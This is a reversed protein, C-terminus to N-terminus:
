RDEQDYKYDIISPILLAAAAAVAIAAVVIIYLM